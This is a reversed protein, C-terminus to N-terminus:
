RSHAMGQAPVRLHGAVTDHDGRQRVKSQKDLGMRM